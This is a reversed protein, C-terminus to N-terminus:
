NAKLANDLRIERRVKPQIGPRGAKKKVIQNGEKKQLKIQSSDIKNGYLSLHMM